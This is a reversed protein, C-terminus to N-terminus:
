LAVNMWITYLANMIDKWPVRHMLCAAHLMDFVIANIAVEFYVIQVMRNMWIPNAMKNSRFKILGWIHIFNLDVSLCM